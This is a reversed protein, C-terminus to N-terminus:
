IPEESQVTGETNETNETTLKEVRLKEVEVPDVKEGGATAYLGM